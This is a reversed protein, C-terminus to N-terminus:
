STPSKQRWSPDVQGSHVALVTYVGASGEAKKQQQQFQVRQKFNKDCFCIWPVSAFSVTRRHLKLSVTLRQSVRKGSTEGRGELVLIM